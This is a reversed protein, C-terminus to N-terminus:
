FLKKGDVLVNYYKIEITPTYYKSLSTRDEENEFSLVFLRNIKSFTPDVLYNLNDTKAQNTMESRYKNWKITRQFGTKLQELLKNDDQASLTVVPVYLKTGSISFTAGTPARIEVVPSNATADGTKTKLDTLVCNKSWTLILNVECNILPM